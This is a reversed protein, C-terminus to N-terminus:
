TLFTLAALTLADTGVKLTSHLKPAFFPSHNDPILSDVQGKLVADDWEDPDIGGINWYAYPINKVTALVSFDEVSSDPEMKIANDNFHIKFAKQVAEMVAPTNNTLPARARTDIRPKRIIGADRVEEQILEEVAQLVKYRTEGDYTKVDINFDAHAVYDGRPEGAHFARCGIIVAPSSKFDKSLRELKSVVNAAIGIPEINSQPNVGPGSDGHIRIDLADAYPLVVGPRTAVLGSKLPVVHQGLVVDPVPVRDYLRDDVMAQAGGTYEENPQFLAIVTGHWEQQCNKLTALAALLAAMHLDHGCAHMVPQEKGYEDMMIKTSAYPLGTQEKIPLADM